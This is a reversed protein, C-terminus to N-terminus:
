NIMGAEELRKAVPNNGPLEPSDPRNFILTETQIFGFYAAIAAVVIHFPVNAGYLPMTGLATDLAPVLGMIGFLGFLVAISGSYLKATAGTTYSIIGVLGLIIHLAASYINTPFLGMFNGLGSSLGADVPYNPLYSPADLGNPLLALIGTATLIGGLVLAFLRVKM